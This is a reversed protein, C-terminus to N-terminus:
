GHCKKYKKGSGCPCPKNRGPGGPPPELFTRLIRFEDAQPDVGALAYLRKAERADGSVSRLDALTALAEADQPDAAVVREILSLWAPGDGRDEAACALLLLPVASLPAEVARLMTEALWQAEPEGMDQAAYDFVLGTLRRALVVLEEDGPSEEDRALALSARWARWALTQNRRQVAKKM